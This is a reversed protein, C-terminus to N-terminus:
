DSQFPCLYYDSAFPFCRLDQYCLRFKLYASVLSPVDQLAEMFISWKKKCFTTVLSWLLPSIFLFFPQPVAFFWWCFTQLKMWWYCGSEQYIIVPYIFKWFSLTLGLRFKRKEMWSSSQSFFLNEILYSYKHQQKIRPVLWQLSNNWAIQGTNKIYHSRLEFQDICSLPHNQRSLGCHSDIVCFTRM